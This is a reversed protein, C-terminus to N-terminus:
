PKTHGLDFGEDGDQRKRRFFKIVRKGFESKWFEDDINPLFKRTPPPSGPGPYDNRLLGELPSLIYEWDKVKAKQRRGPKAENYVVEFDIDDKTEKESYCVPMLFATYNDRFLHGKKGTAKNLLLNAKYFSQGFYVAIGLTKCPKPIPMDGFDKKIKAIYKELEAFSYVVANTQFDDPPPKYNKRLEDALVLPIPLSLRRKIPGSEQPFVGKKLIDDTEFANFDSARKKSRFLFWGVAIGIGFVSILILFNM